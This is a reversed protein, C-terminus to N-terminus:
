VPCAKRQWKAYYVPSLAMNVVHNRALITNLYERHSKGSCSNIVAQGPLGTVRYDTLQWRRVFFVPVPSM